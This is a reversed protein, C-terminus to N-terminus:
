QRVDILRGVVTPAVRVEVTRESSRLAEARLAALPLDLPASTNRWLVEGPPRVEINYAINLM